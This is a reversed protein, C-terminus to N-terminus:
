VVQVLQKKDGSWVFWAYAAADTGAGTFSPRESLVYLGSVPHRQWFERRKKSELFALRLLMIIDTDKGDLEFAREVFQQALSFPPNTIITSYEMDLSLSLFDGIIVRGHQELGEREQERIEVSTLPNNYGAERIAQLINGNGAAPELINGEKLKYQNLFQRVTALPTGYFDNVNRTAGRNTASLYNVGQALFLFASWRIVTILEILSHTNM